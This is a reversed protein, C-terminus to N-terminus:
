KLAGQTKAAAAMQDVAVQSVANHDQRPRMVHEWALCDGISCFPCNKREGAPRAPHIQNALHTSARLTHFWASELHYAHLPDACPEWAVHTAIRLLPHNALRTQICSDSRGVYFPAPGHLLMYVGSHEVPILARLVDPRAIFAFHKPEDLILEANRAM